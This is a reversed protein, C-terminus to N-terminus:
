KAVGTLEKGITDIIGQTVDRKEELIRRQRRDLGADSDIFDLFAKKGREEGLCFYPIGEGEKKGILDEIFHEMFYELAFQVLKAEDRELTITM